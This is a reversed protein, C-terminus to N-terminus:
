LRMRKLIIKKLLNRFGNLEIKDYLFIFNFEAVNIDVSGNETM